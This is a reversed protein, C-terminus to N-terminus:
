ARPPRFVDRGYGPSVPLSTTSRDLAHDPALKPLRPAAPRVWTDDFGSDAAIPQPHGGSRPGFAARIPPLPAECGLPFAADIKIDRAQLVPQPAIASAGREDCIPAAAGATRSVLLVLAWSCAWTMWRLSASRFTM